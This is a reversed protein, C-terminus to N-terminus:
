SSKGSGFGLALWGLGLLSLLGGGGIMGLSALMSVPKRGEEIIWVKDLDVTPFDIQILKKEEADLSDILNIVLGQVKDESALGGPISDTTKFRKSKVLVSFDNIEPYEDEPINNPNGHKEIGAALETFFSNDESIIPYYIHNVRDSGEEGEYVCGYYDAVHEGILVHNGAPTEGGEIAALEVALPEASSGMSVRFEQVGFFALVLGGVIAALKLRIM